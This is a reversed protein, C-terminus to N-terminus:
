KKIKRSIQRVLRMLWSAYKITGTRMLLETILERCYLRWYLGRDLIGKGLLKRYVARNREIADVSKKNYGGPHIRYRVLPFDVYKIRYKHAVRLWLEYDEASFIEPSEDMMGVDDIVSKRVMV